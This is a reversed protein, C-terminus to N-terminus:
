NLNIISLCVQYDYFRLFTNQVFFVPQGIPNTIDFTGSGNVGPTGNVTDYLIM